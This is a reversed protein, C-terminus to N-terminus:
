SFRRKIDSAAGAINDKIDEAKNKYEHAKSELTEKYKKAKKMLKKRSKTGEQPALLLGTIAGITFGSILLVAANSIKM